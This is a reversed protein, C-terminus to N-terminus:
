GSRRPACGPAALAHVHRGSRRHGDDPVRLADQGHLGQFRRSFAIDLQQGQRLQDAGGARQHGAPASDRNEPSREGITDTLLASGSRM